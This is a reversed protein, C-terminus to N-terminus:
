EEVMRVMMVRDVVAELGRVLLWALHLGPVRELVGPEEAMVQSPVEPEAEM